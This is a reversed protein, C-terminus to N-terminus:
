SAVRLLHTRGPDDSAGLGAALPVVGPQAALWGALTSELPKATRWAWVGILEADEVDLLYDIHWRLRKATPLRAPLGAAALHAALEDRIAHPARPEYDLAEARDKQRDLARQLAPSRISSRTAHRLLRAALGGRASGVYFTDGAPVAVPQGGRFRGFVVARPAALRVCLVYVGGFCSPDGGITIHPPLYFVPPASPLPDSIDQNKDTDMQTM